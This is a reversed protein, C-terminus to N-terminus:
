KMLVLKKSDIFSGAGGAAPYVKLQYIYVGSALNRGDFEVEYVGPPKEENVLTAIENGLIDYVKLIVLNNDNRAQRGVPLSQGPIEYRIKTSPNFPNPYNQSLSFEEPILDDEQEVSVTIGFWQLAQYPTNENAFGIWYYYPYNNNVATNISLPDYAAFVIKNGAPLTRHSLTPLIQVNPVGGIGRTEVNMDVEVDTEVEFADIWNDVEIEFVPNYMMSDAPPNLTNFLDLLPGGFMTETVPLLLSPIRSSGYSGDYSVDNYSHTIGLVDYEFDGASYDQDVFNHRLGLWEQGALFYNRSGDAVLWNTIVSDNYDNPGNTCFEFINDYLNVVEEQLPGYSWTDHPFTTLGDKVDAGFYYEQPFGDPNSLGNFVILNSAGSPAFIMYNVTTGITIYGNIDSAELYYLVETGPSQGPIFGTFNPEAGTMETYDWNLGADTSFRIYVYAVGPNGGPASDSVVADVVRDETSLTSTLHTFEEIDPGTDGVLDVEVPFDFTYERTWWGFDIGPDLRGNPYFVWGPIGIIDALFRMTSGGSISSPNKLAVAFIEGAAITPEYGLSDTRVWQYDQLTEDPIFSFGVGGDSWIDEAFPEMVGPQISTWGGTRDPDDLFATINNNGNGLAEYYGWWESGASLLQDVTWNVKVIKVEASLDDPNATCYFGLGKIILDAPALYWQLLWGQGNVPFDASFTGDNYSLTDILGSINSLQLPKLVLNNTKGLETKVEYTKRLDNKYKSKQKELVTNQQTYVSVYLICILLLSMIKM